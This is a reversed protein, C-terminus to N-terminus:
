ELVARVRFYDGERVPANRLVDEVPMSPRVEDDREVNVLDLTHATPPVGETDIQRLVDFHDLIDSLQAQFREVEEDTLAVRALRAVHLVDERSLPM